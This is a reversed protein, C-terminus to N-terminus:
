QVAPLIYDEIVDYYMLPVNWMDDEIYGGATQVVVMNLSPIVV